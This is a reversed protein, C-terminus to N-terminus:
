AETIIGSFPYIINDITGIHPREEEERRSWSVGSRSRGVVISPFLRGLINDISLDVFILGYSSM